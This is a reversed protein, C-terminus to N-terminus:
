DPHLSALTFKGGEQNEGLLECVTFATIRPNQLMWYFKILSTGSNPIGEKGWDSPILCIYYRVIEPNETM